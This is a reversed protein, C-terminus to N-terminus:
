AQTRGARRARTPRTQGPEVHEGTSATQPGPYEERAPPTHDSTVSPGQKRGSVSSHSGTPHKSKRPRTAM